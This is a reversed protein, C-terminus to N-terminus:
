MCVPLGLINKEKRTQPFFITLSCFSKSFFRLTTKDTKEAEYGTLKQPLVCKYYITNFM